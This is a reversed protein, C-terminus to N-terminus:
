KLAEDIMTEWIGGYHSEFDEPSDLDTTGCESYASKKMQDTPERMAALAARALEGKHAALFLGFASALAKDGREAIVEALAAEVRLIMESM